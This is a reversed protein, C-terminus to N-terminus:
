EAEHNELTLNGAPRDMLKMLPGFAALASFLRNRAPSERCIQKQRDPRRRKDFRLKGHDVLTGEPHSGVM